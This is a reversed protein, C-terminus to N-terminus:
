ERWKSVYTNINFKRECGSYSMYRVKGYIDREKWPRDHVGGISWAIGTYGNPDRGDLEYKDNLYIAIEIAVEPSESWELIKKAWYMRLYGHMKGKLVMELQASNWLIDHTKAQEFEELKYTYIRRDKRHKNLTEKAWNPFGNFNDYNEEYYCFNDALEKRVILEELFVEKANKSSSSNLIELAVRQASIQGFHLYPSLNSLANSNPNNRELPYKDLNENIFKKLQKKASREGAEFEKVDSVSRDIKLNKLIENAKFITSVHNSNFPHYKLEPYDTLFDSLFKKIKARFTKASFEKKDSAYWCPVINHADVEYIPINLKKLLNKKWNRKIKLPDFDCVIASINNKEVFSPLTHIPSGMLLHFPINKERLSKALEELGRVMFAYHRYNAVLFSDVLCFVVYLPKKHEIALEQAYLLAWNDFARQDRSMWYIIPGEKLLLINNLQRVRKSNVVTM